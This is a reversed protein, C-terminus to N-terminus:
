DMTRWAREMEQLVGTALLETGHKSRGGSRRWAPDWHIDRYTRTLIIIIGIGTSIIEQFQLTM